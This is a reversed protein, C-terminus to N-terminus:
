DYPPRERQATGTVPALCLRRAALAQRELLVEKRLLLKQALLRARARRRAELVTSFRDALDGEVARHSNTLDNHIRIDALIAHEIRQTVHPHRHNALSFLLSPTLTNRYDEHMKVLSRIVPKVGAKDVGYADADFDMLRTFGHILFVFPYLVIPVVTLAIVILLGPNVAGKVLALTPEVNLAEYFSPTVAALSFLYWFATSLGAFFVFLATNHWRGSRGAACAVVATIEEPTLKELSRSFVVLRARGWPRRFVFASGILRDRPREGVLIEAGALGVEPLFAEIRSRMPGFPMERVGGNFAATLPPKIFIRWAFWAVTVVAAAFWWAYSLANLFVLVIFILPVEVALGTAIDTILRKFWLGRETKEYGYRENIRFQKWWAVPIDIVTLILSVTFVIFFQSIIGTGWLACFGATILNFGNGFTLTLCVLAGLIANVLDAQVIEGTYDAAKRHVRLNVASRFAPPLGVAAHEAAKVQLIALATQMCVYFAAAAVFLTNLLAATDSM